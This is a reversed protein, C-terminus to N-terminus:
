ASLFCNAAVELLPADAVDKAAEAKVAELADALRMPKEMGEFQVMMDPSLRAIEASQADLATAALNEQGTPKQAGNADAKKAPQAVPKAQATAAQQRPKLMKMGTAEGDRLEFPSYPAKVSTGTDDFTKVLRPDTEPIDTYFVRGDEGSKAAYGRAYRLDGPAVYRGTVSPMDLGGHYLRVFGPAVPPEDFLVDHISRDLKAHDLSAEDIMGAVDVREGAALQDAARTMAALHDDAARADGASMPNAADVAQRVQAVRAAAVAEPDGAMAKGAETGARQALYDDVRQLYNRTEAAPADKGARVAAGAKGGGNYHAIAARVDGGYQDILSKM